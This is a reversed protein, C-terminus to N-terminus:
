PRSMRRLALLSTVAHGIAVEAHVSLDLSALDAASAQESARAAADVDDLYLCARSLGAAVRARLACSQPGIGRLVEECLRRVLRDAETGDGGELILMGFVPAIGIGTLSAPLSQV